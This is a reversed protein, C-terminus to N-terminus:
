TLQYGFGIVAGYAMQAILVSLPTRYGYNLGIFGPPELRRTTTPGDYENAMRPHMWAIIPLLVVVLVAAHAAGLLLGIWWNGRGIAIFFVAYIMAFAWGGLTYLAFGLVNARSRNATFMSGVLFAISLRSWGIGHSGHLLTTMVLTAALGWILLPGFNDLLIQM